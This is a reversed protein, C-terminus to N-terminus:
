SEAPPEPVFPRRGVRSFRDTWRGECGPCAIDQEVDLGEVMCLPGYDLGDQGCEPCVDEAVPSPGSNAIGMSRIEENDFRFYFRGDVIVGEAEEYDRGNTVGPPMLRAAEHRAESERDEAAELARLSMARVALATEPANRAAGAQIRAAEAYLSRPLDWVEPGGRAVEWAAMAGKMLAKSEEWARIATEVESM